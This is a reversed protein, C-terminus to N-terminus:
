PDGALKRKSTGYNGFMLKRELEKLRDPKPPPYKCRKRECEIVDSQWRAFEFQYEGRMDIKPLEDQIDDVAQSVTRITESNQNIAKRMDPHDGLPQGDGNPANPDFGGNHEIIASKVVANVEADTANNAMWLQWSIGAGFIFVIMTVAVKAGAGIKQFRDWHKLATSQEPTLQGSSEQLALKLDDLKVILTTVPDRTVAAREGTKVRGLKAPDVASRGSAPKGVRYEDDAGM